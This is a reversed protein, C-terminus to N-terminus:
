ATQIFTEFNHEVLLSATRGSAFEYLGATQFNGRFMCPLGSGPIPQRCTSCICFVTCRGVSCGSGTTRHNRGTKSVSSTTLGPSPDKYLRLQGNLTGNLGQCGPVAIPHQRTKYATEFAGHTFIEGKAFRLGIGIETNQFGHIDQGPGNSFLYDYRGPVTEHLLPYGMSAHTIFAYQPLRYQEASDM